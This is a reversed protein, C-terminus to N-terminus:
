QATQKEDELMFCGCLSIEVDADKNCLMGM